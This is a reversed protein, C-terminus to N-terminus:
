CGPMVQKNVLSPNHHRRALHESAPHCHGLLLLGGEDVGDPVQGQSEAGPGRVGAQVPLTIIPPGSPELSQVNRGEPSLGRHLPVAAVPVPLPMVCIDPQMGCTQDEKDGRAGLSGQSPVGMAVM